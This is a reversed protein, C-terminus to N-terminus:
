AVSDVAEKRAWALSVEVAPFGEFFTGDEHWPACGIREYEDFGQLKMLLLFGSRSIELCHCSELTAPIEYDLKILIPANPLHSILIRGKERDLAYVGTTSTLFRPTENEDESGNNPWEAEDGATLPRLRAKLRIMAKTVAGFKEKDALEVKYDIVRMTSKGFRLPYRIGKKAPVSAWSWSPAIDLKYTSGSASNVQDQVTWLLGKHLSYLWVGVLYEEDPESKSIESFYRKAMGSLAPLRDAIKEFDRTSYDEISQLWAYEIQFTRSHGDGFNEYEAQQFDQYYLSELGLGHPVFHPTTETCTGSLCTWFIGHATWHIIRPSLKEEQFAWGRTDLPCTKKITQLSKHPIQLSTQGITAKESQRERLAEAKRKQLFGDSANKSSSIALTFTAFGYIRDLKGAEISWEPSGQDQLICLADVWLYGIELDRCM